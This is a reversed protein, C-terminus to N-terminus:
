ICMYKGGTTDVEIAGSVRKSDDRSWSQDIAKNLEDSKYPSTANVEMSIRQFKILLATKEDLKEELEKQHRCHFHKLSHLPFM